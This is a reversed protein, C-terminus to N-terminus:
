WGASTDRALCIPLRIDRLLFRCPFQCVTPGALFLIAYFGLIVGRVFYKKRKVNFLCLNFYAERHMGVQTKKFIDYLNDLNSNLM